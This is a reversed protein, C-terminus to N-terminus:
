SHDGTISWVKGTLLLFMWSSVPPSSMEEQDWGFGIGSVPHMFLIPGAAPLGGAVRIVDVPVGVAM